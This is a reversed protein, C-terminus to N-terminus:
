LHNMSTQNEVKRHHPYDSLTLNPHRPYTDTATKSAGLYRFCVHPALTYSSPHVPSRNGAVDPPLTHHGSIYLIASPM